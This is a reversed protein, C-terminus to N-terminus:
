FKQLSSELQFTISDFEQCLEQSIKCIELTDESQINLNKRTTNIYHKMTQLSEQSQRSDQILNNSMDTHDGYLVMIEDINTTLLKISVEIEKLSKQTSQALKNVESAVVAFGRGHEGARAAEITANLALLNTEGAINNIFMLVGKIQEISSSLSHLKISLENQNQFNSDLKNLLSELTSHTNNFHENTLQNYSDKLKTTASEIDRIRNTNKTINTKTQKYIGQLQSELQMIQSSLQTLKQTKEKDTCRQAQINTDIAQLLSQIHKSPNSVHASQTNQSSLSRPSQTSQVIETLKNTTWDITQTFTKLHKIVSVMLGVIFFGLFGMLAIFIFHLLRNDQKIQQLSTDFISEQSDAILLNFHEYIRNLLLAHIKMFVDQLGKALMKPNKELLNAIQAHYAKADIDSKVFSENWSRTMAVVLALSRKDNPQLLLASLHKDIQGLFDLQDLLDQSYALSDTFKTDNSIEHLIGQATQLNDKLLTRERIHFVMFVVLELLLLIFLTLVKRKFGQM